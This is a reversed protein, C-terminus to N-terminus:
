FGTVSPDHDVFVQIENGGIRIQMFISAALGLMEYKKHELESKENRNKWIISGAEAPFM